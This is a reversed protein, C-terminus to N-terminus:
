NKNDVVYQHAKILQYIFLELKDFTHAMAFPQSFCHQAWASSCSLLSHNIHYHVSRISAPGPTTQARLHPFVRQIRGIQVTLTHGLLSEQSEKRSKAWDLLSALSHGQLSYVQVQTPMFFFFLFFIQIGESLKEVVM